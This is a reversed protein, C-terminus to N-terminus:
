LTRLEDDTAEFPVNRVFVTTGVEPAPLTPKVPKEEDEDEDEDDDEPQSDSEDSGGEDDSDGEHVGLQEDESGSEGDEEGEDEESEDGESSGEGEDGSEAEAELKAKEAEWKDKSLAWDVAITRRGGADEPRKGTGDAVLAYLHGRGCSSGGESTERARPKGESEVM